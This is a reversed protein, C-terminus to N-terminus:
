AAIRGERQAAFVDRELKQFEKATIRKNRYDAYLQAIEARTWMRKESGQQPPTGGRPRGPAVLADKGSAQPAQPQQQQPAADTPTVMGTKEKYANFFYAAREVNRRGVADTLLEQKTLGTGPDVEELWTLFGADTNLQQWGSAKRSLETFFINQATKGSTQEVTKVSGELKSLRADMANLAKQVDAGAVSKAVRTMMDIMEEGYERVDDKTVLNEAVTQVQATDTQQQAQPQQRMEALLERMVSLEEDKKAIMGQAVKWRHDSQAIQKQMEALQAQVSNDEAPTDGNISIVEATGESTEGDENQAIASPDASEAQEEAPAEGQQNLQRIMEDAEEGIKKPNFKAM